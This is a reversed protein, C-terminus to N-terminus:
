LRLRMSASPSMMALPSRRRTPCACGPATAASVLPSGTSISASASPARGPMLRGMSRSPSRMPTTPMVPGGSSTRGRGLQDARRDREEDTVLLGQEGAGVPLSAAVEERLPEDGM